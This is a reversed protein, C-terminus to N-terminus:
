KKTAADTQRASTLIMISRLPTAHSGEQLSPGGAGTDSELAQGFVIQQDAPVLGHSEGGAKVRRYPLLQRRRQVQPLDLGTRGMGVAAAAAQRQDGAQQIRLDIWRQLDDLPIPPSPLDFGGDAM